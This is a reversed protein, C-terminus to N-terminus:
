AKRSSNKLKELFIKQMSTDFPYLMRARKVDEDSVDAVVTKRRANGANGHSEVVEVDEEANRPTFLVKLKSDKRLRAVLAELTEGDNRKRLVTEGFDADVLDLRTVLYMVDKDREREAVIQEYRATATEAMLRKEELEALIREQETMKARETATKYEALETAAKEKEKQLAALARKLRENEKDKDSPPKPEVVEIEEVEVIGDGM